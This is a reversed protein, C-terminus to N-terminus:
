QKEEVIEQFKTVYLVNESVNKMVVTSPGITANNGIIVGPMTSAKIGITVNSGIMAGVSKLNTDVKENNVFAKVTDRDLRVNATTFGTGIRSNEGIVSDGIFGSHTKTNKMILSNKVEMYSGIVSNEEVDVGNRLLANDGVVVNKGIYAPGKIRAGEIIKAGEEIIVKGLIEASKAITANKAVKTKIKSLLFNKVNLLDWPYKLSVTTAKTEVYTVLSQSAAKAIADELQYQDPKTKEITKLFSPSFAYVGVVCLSSPEKGKKPKEVIDLVQDGKVTLVGQAWTDLRKKALLVAQGSKTKKAILAKVMDQADVHYGHLAIFDETLFEKALLLGNGMGLPEEQVVYRISVGLNKGEGLYDRIRGNANEVVIINTIGASKLGEITHAILPKGLMIIMSKHTDQGFPYLRSSRGAALLIAQM